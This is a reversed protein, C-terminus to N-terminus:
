RPHQVWPVVAYGREQLCFVLMRAATPRQQYMLVPAPIQAQGAIRREQEPTLPVVDSKKANDARRDCESLDKMVEAPDHLRTQCALRGAWSM